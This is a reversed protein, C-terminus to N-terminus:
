MRAVSANWRNRAAMMRLDTKSKNECKGVPPPMAMRPNQALRAASAAIMEAEAAAEDWTEDEGESPEGPREGRLYQEAWELDENLKEEEADYELMENADQLDRKLRVNERMLRTNENYAEKLEKMYHIQTDKAAIMGTLYRVDAAEVYRDAAQCVSFICAQQYAERSATLERMAADMKAKRRALREKERAVVSPEDWEWGPDDNKRKAMVNWIRVQGEYAKEADRMRQEALDLETRPAKKPRGRKKPAAAAAPAAAPEPEAPPAPPPEPEPDPAPAPGQELALVADDIAELDAEPSVIVRKRKKRMGIGPQRPM